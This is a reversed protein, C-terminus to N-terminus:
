PLKSLLGALDGIAAAPQSAAEFDGALAILDAVERACEVPQGPPQLLVLPPISPHIGVPSGSTVAPRCDNRAASAAIAM